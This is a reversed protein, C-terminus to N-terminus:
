NNSTDTYYNFISEPQLVDDTIDDMCELDVIDYAIFHKEVTVVVGRIGELIGSGCSFKSSINTLIVAVNNSGRSKRTM